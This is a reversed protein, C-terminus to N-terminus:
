SENEDLDIFIADLGNLDIAIVAEIAADLASIDLSETDVGITNLWRLATELALNKRELVSPQIADKYQQEVAMVAIRAAQEIMTALWVPQSQEFERWALRARQILFTALAPGVTSVFLALVTIIANILPTWDINM